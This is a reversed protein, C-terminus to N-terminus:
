FREPTMMGRMEVTPTFPLIANKSFTPKKATTEM